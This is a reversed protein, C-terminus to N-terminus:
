IKQRDREDGLPRQRLEHKRIGGTTTKPLEPVMEIYRPVLHSAMRASCWEIIEEPLLLVGPRPVIFVRVDEDELESLVATAASELVKPHSSIIREIEISSFVEGGRRICDAKRDLFFFDGETDVYGLDGTHFWDNRMNEATRDHEGYYGLFIAEPNKSRLIIEGSLGTPLEKGFEDAVKGEYLPLPKGISGEKANNGLNALGMGGCETLHFGEAIKVDFRKEFHHRMKGSIAGGFALRAPNAADDPREPLDMLSDIMSGTYNFVTVGHRRTEEWFSPAEFGEGLVMPCGSILSGVVSLTQTHIRSLPLTTFFVDRASAQVVHEAWVRGSHCYNRQSIMAGKPPGTTGPTYVISMVDSPNTEPLGSSTGAFAGVVGGYNLFGPPTGGVDGIWVSKRIRPLKLVQDEVALFASDEVVLVTADSHSAIYTVADRRLSTEMPIMIAGLKALGFWLEIFEPRNSIMLCVKDGRRVGIERLLNAARNSREEMQAISISQDRFRLFPRDGNASARDRLIDPIM